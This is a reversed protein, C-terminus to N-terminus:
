YSKSSHSPTVWRATVEGWRVRRTIASNTTILGTSSEQQKAKAPHHLTHLNAHPHTSLTHKVVHMPGYTQALALCSNVLASVSVGGQM